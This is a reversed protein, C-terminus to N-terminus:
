LVPPNNNEQIEKTYVDKLKDEYKTLLKQKEIPDPERDFLNIIGTTWIRLYEVNIQKEMIKIKRHEWFWGIAGGM